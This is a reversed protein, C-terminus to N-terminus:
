PVSDLWDFVVQNGTQPAMPACHGRAGQAATFEYRTKDCRGIGLKGIVGAVDDALDRSSLREVAPRERILTQGITKTWSFPQCRPM